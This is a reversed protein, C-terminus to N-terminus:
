SISQYHVYSTFIFAVSRSPRSTIRSMKKKKARKEEQKSKNQNKTQKKTKQKKTNINYTNITM